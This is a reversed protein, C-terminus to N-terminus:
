CDFWDCTLQTYRLTPDYFEACLRHGRRATQNLNTVKEDAIYFSEPFSM